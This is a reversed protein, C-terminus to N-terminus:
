VELDKLLDGVAEGFQRVHQEEKPSHPLGEAIILQRRGPLKDYLLRQHEPPCTDDESGVLLGVPMTLKEADSLVDYRLRDIMHSWPLQGTRGTSRSIKEQWGTEQWEQLRKPDRAKKYDYSLQGSIVPALGLVAKVREPYREAYLLCCMGGLSAGVLVFPEQYWPQPASWAIVDELDALYTTVTAQAYDGGSEGFTNAADFSVTTFGAKGLEQTVARIHAQDKHGGLGHMLFALGRPKDPTERVIVLNQGLRNDITERM